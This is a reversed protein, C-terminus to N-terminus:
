SQSDVKKIGKRTRNHEKLLCLRSTKYSVENIIDENDALHYPKHNIHINTHKTTHTFTTLKKRNKVLLEREAKDKAGILCDNDFSTLSLQVEHLRNM